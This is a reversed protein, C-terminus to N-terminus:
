AYYKQGIKKVFNCFNRTQLVITVFLILFLLGGNFCLLIPPKQMMTHIVGNQVLFNNVNLIGMKGCM